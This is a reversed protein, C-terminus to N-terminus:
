EVTRLVVEPKVYDFTGSLNHTKWSSDPMQLDMNVQYPEDTRDEFNSSIYTTPPVYLRASVSDPNPTVYPGGWRVRQEKPILRLSFRSRYTTGVGVFSRETSEILEMSHIPMCDEQPPAAAPGHASGLPLAVLGLLGGLMLFSAAQQKRRRRRLRRRFAQALQHPAPTPQRPM